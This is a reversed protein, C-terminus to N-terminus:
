MAELHCSVASGARSSRPLGRSLTPCNLMASARRMPSRSRASIRSRRGRPQLVQQFHHAAAGLIGLFYLRQRDTLRSDLDELADGIKDLEEGTLEITTSPGSVGGSGHLAEIIQKIQAEIADLRAAVSTSSKSEAM